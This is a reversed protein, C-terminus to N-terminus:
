SPRKLLVMLTSLFSIKKCRELVTYIEYLRPPLLHMGLNEMELLFGVSAETLIYNGKFYELMVIFDCVAKDFTDM